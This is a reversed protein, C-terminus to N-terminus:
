AALSLADVFTAPDVNGGSVVAVITKGKIPLKGALVATAAVAGGPEAVLKFEQFLTAMARKVEEDTVAFGGKLLKSNLAFTMEGPTPALLADCISRADPDNKIRTGAELSRKTDDFGVPEAAYVPVGPLAGSLALATGSVLGGGGCCVVVADPKVGLAECQQAIELGITGQGAIINPDDYPKVLTAGYKAQLELGMKERDQTYRDYPVVTAGFAKTRAIKITPADEPMIIWAPMGLMQAAAAVGQAHNGSSFAVVGNKRKDAPIQSIANYAGRFKFSGTRQLPEAKLLLRGGLKANLLPAELLPTKVAFGEIRKAAAVVDDFVPLAM